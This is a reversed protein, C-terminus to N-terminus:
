GASVPDQQAVIYTLWCTHKLRSVATIVVLRLAAAHLMGPCGCTHPSASTQPVPLYPRAGYVQCTWDCCHQLTTAAAMTLTYRVCRLHLPQTASWVQRCTVKVRSVQGKGDLGPKGAVYRSLFTVMVDAAAACPGKQNSQAKRSARKVIFGPWVMSSSPTTSSLQRVTLVKPKTRMCCPDVSMRLLVTSKWPGGLTHMGSSIM